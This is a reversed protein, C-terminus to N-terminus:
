DVYEARDVAWCDNWSVIWTKNEVNLDEIEVLEKATDRKAILGFGEYMGPTGPVPDGIQIDRTDVPKGDESIFTKVRFHCAWSEGATIDEINMIM